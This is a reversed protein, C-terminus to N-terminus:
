EKIVVLIRSLLVAGVLLYSVWISGQQLAYYLFFPILLDLIIALRKPNNKIINTPKMASL